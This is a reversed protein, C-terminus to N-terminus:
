FRRGHRPCAGGLRSGGFPVSGRAVGIEEAGSGVAIKCRVERLGGGDRGNFPITVPRPPAVCGWSVRFRRAVSVYHVRADSRVM